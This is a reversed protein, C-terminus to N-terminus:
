WTGLVHGNGGCERVREVGRRVAQKWSEGDETEKREQLEVFYVDHFPTGMLSPRRDLRTIPIALASILQSIDFNSHTM